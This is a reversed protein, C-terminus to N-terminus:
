QSHWKLQMQGGNLLAITFITEGESSAGSISVKGGVIRDRVIPNMLVQDDLMLPLSQNIRHETIDTFAQGGAPTMELSIMFNENETINRWWAKLYFSSLYELARAGFAREWLPPIQMYTRQLDENRLQRATSGEKIMFLTYIPRGDDREPFFSWALTAKGLFVQSNAPEKMLLNSLQIGASTYKGLEARNSDINSTSVLLNGQMQQMREVYAQIWTRFDPVEKLPFIDESHFRGPASLLKNWAMTDNSSRFSVRVSDGVVHIEVNKARAWELRKRMVTTDNRIADVSGAEHWLVVNQLSKAPECGLITLSVLLALFM